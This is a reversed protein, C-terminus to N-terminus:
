GNTCYVTLRRGVRSQKLACLGVELRLLGTGMAASVTVEFIQDETYGADRLAAIDRDTIEHAAYAVKKVYRGLVGPLDAGNCAAERISPELRGPSHLVIRKLREMKVAYACESPEVTLIDREGEGMDADQDRTTWLWLGSLLKYGFARLFWTIGHFARVPPVEFGLADAIRNIINFGACIYIADIIARYSVDECDPVDSATVQNPALTLKELFRLMARLSEEIPATRWDTLIERALDDGLEASAVAGHAM